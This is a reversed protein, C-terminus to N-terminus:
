SYRTYALEFFEQQYSPDPHWRSLRDSIFNAEGYVHIAKLEFNYMASIFWIERLMRKRLENKSHGHNIETVVTSNDSNIVLRKCTFQDKRKLEKSIIHKLTHLFENPLEIHFYSGFYFGGCGTDCTDVSFDLNRQLTKSFCVVLILGPTIRKSSRVIHFSLKIGFCKIYTAYIHLWSSYM